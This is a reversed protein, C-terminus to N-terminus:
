TRPSRARSLVSRAAEGAKCAAEVPPLRNLQDSFVEVGIPAQSGIADLRRIVDVVDIAGEGPLLRGHMSEYVIDDGPVPGADNIQVAVVAGGPLLLLEKNTHGGRFHHWTDLMLGGNPRGALRVIELATKADPIGSWPLFELSVKLGHWAARDCLGAFAEATAETDVRSPLVHVVNLSRAGLADAIGFFFDETYGAFRGKRVAEAGPLWTLLPDLESLVLGHEELMLHMDLDSLGGARAAEYHDPWISLARFGGAAAAEVLGRFGADAITGCCLCLDDPGLM